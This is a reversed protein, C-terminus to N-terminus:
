LERLMWMMYDGPEPEFGVFPVFGVAAYFRRTRDYEPSEARPSM